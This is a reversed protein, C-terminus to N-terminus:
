KSELLWATCAQVSDLFEIKRSLTRISQELMVKKIGSIGTVAIKPAYSAACRVANFAADLSADDLLLGEFNLIVLLDRDSQADMFKRADSVAASMAGPALRSFDLLLVRLGKEYIFTWREM